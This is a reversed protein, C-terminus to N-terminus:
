TNKIFGPAKLVEHNSFKVENNQQQEMMEIARFYFDQLSFTNEISKLEIMEDINNTESVLTWVGNEKRWLEVYVQRSDVMLYEVLTPISRYMQFKSGRNYGETVKSLIELLLIPNKLSM